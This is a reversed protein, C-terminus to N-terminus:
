DDDMSEMLEEFGISCMESNPNIMNLLSDREGFEDVSDYSCYYINWEIEECYSCNGCVNVLM